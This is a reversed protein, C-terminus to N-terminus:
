SSQNTPITPHSRPVWSNVVWHAKGGKGVKNLEMVYIEGRGKKPLLILEIMAYNKSSLDVKLSTLKLPKLFPIVPIDGTLWEKYTLDQRIQPGALAWAKDLNKRQVATLIFDGAVRRVAPELPVTKPKPAVKTPPENKFVEPTNTGTDRFFVILVAAIGAALVFGGIWLLWRQTRPSSLRPPKQDPV